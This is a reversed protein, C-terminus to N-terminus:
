RTKLLSKAKEKKQPTLLYEEKMNLKLIYSHNM